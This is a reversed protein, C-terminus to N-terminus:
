CWSDGCTSPCCMVAVHVQLVQATPSASCVGSRKGSKAFSWPVEIEEHDLLDRRTTDGRSSSADNENWFLKLVKLESDSGMQLYSREELFDFVVSSDM